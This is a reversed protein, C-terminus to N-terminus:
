GGCVLTAVQDTSAWLVISHLRPLSRLMVHEGPEMHRADHCSREPGVLGSIFRQDRCRVRCNMLWCPSICTGAHRVHSCACSTNTHTPAIDQFSPRAPVGAYWSCRAAWVSCWSDCASPNYIAGESSLGQRRWSVYSATTPLYMGPARRRKGCVHAPWGVEVIKASIFVWCAWYGLVHLPRSISVVMASTQAAPRYVLSCM